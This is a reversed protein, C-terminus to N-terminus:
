HKIWSLILYFFSWFILLIMGWAFLCVFITLSVVGRGQHTQHSSLADSGLFDPLVSHSDFWYKQFHFKNTKHQDGQFSIDTNRQKWKRDKLYCYSEGRWPCVNIMLTSQCKNVFMDSFYVYMSVDIIMYSLTMRYWSCLVFIVFRWM